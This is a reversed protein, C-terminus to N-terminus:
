GFNNLKDSQTKKRFTNTLEAIRACERLYLASSFRQIQVEFHVNIACDCDSPFFLGAM